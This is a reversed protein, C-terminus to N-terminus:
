KGMRAKLGAIKARNAQIDDLTATQEDFAEAARLQQPLTMKTPHKAAPEVKTKALQIFARIAAAKTMGEIEEGGIAAISLKDLVRDIATTRKSKAMIQEVGLNILIQVPTLM